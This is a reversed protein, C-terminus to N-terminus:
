DGEGGSAAVAGRTAGHMLAETMRVVPVVQRVDHVRLIRAGREVTWVVTAV